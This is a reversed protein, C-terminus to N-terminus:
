EGPQRPAGRGWLRKVGLEAPKCARRVSWFAIDSRTYYGNQDYLHKARQNQPSVHLFPTEGRALNNNSLWILLRRALGRGTFDPGTCVASIERFGPMAMREGIMAALRSNEFIGFYRGLEMTRSRFYHPYVLNTLELVAPRDVETLPVIPPGPIEPVTAQYAMQALRGLAQLEWGPPVEPRPGVLFVTEEPEVLEQLTSAAIAESGPVGLFPAIEKPYRLAMGKTQAFARHRTALSSWIPNDLIHAAM